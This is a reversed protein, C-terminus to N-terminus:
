DNLYRGETPLFAEPAVFQELCGHDSGTCGGSYLQRFGPIKRINGAHSVPFMHAPWINADVFIIEGNELLKFNDKKLDSIIHNNAIACNDLEVLLEYNRTKNPIYSWDGKANHYYAIPFPTTPGIVLPQALVSACGEYYLLLQLSARCTYSEKKCVKSIIKDGYDDGVCVYHQSGDHWTGHPCEPVASSVWGRAYVSIGAPASVPAVNTGTPAIYCRYPSAVVLLIVMACFFVLLSCNENPPQDPM